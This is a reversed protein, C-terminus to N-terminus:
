LVTCLGIPSVHSNFTITMEGTRDLPALGYYQNYRIWGSVDPEANPGVFITRKSASAEIRNSEIRINSGGGAQNDIFVAQNTGGGDYGFFCNNTVSVSTVPSGKFRYWFAREANQATGRYAQNREVIVDNAGSAIAIADGGVRNMLNFRIAINSQTAEDTLHIGGTASDEILNDVITIHHGGTTNIAIGRQVFRLVNDSIEVDHSADAVQIGAFGPKSNRTVRNGRIRANTVSQAKVLNRQLDDVINGAFDLENVHNVLFANADVNGPNNVGRIQLPTNIDSGRNGTITVYQSQGGPVTDLFVAEYTVSQFANDAVTFNSVNRAAIPSGVTQTFRCDRIQIRDRPAGDILIAPSDSRGKWANSFTPWQNERNGDFSLHDIVVGDGQISLIPDLSHESPLAGDPELVLITKGASTVRTNGPIVLGRVIYTGPPLTATGGVGADIVGQIFATSPSIQAMAPKDVCAAALMM